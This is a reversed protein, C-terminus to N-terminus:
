YKFFKNRENNIGKTQLEDFTSRVYFLRNKCNESFVTYYISTYGFYTSVSHFLLLYLLSVILVKSYYKWNKVNIVNIREKLFFSVSLINFM